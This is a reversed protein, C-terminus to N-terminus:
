YCLLPNSYLPLSAFRRSSACLWLWLWNREESRKGRGARVNEFVQYDGRLAPPPHIGLCRIFHKDRSPDYKEVVATHNYNKDKYAILTGVLEEASLNVDDRITIEAAPPMPVTAASSTAAKTPAARAEVQSSRGKEGNGDFDAGGSPKADWGKMYVYNRKEM